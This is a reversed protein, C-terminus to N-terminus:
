IKRTNVKLGITNTTKSLREAKQENSILVIDVAYDLDEHVTMLAWQIGQCRGQHSNANSLGSGHLLACVVPHMM